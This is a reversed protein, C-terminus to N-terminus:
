ASMMMTEAEWAESPNHSVPAPLAQGPAAATLPIQGLGSAKGSCGSRPILRWGPLDQGPGRRWRLTQRNQATEPKLCGGPLSGRKGTPPSHPLAPNRRVASLVQSLKARGTAKSETARRNKGAFHSSAGNREVYAQECFKWWIYILYRFGSLFPFLGQSSPFFSSSSFCQKRFTFSM